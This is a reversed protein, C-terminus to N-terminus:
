PISVIGHTCADRCGETACPSIASFTGAHETLLKGKPMCETGNHQCHRGKESRAILKPEVPWRCHKSVITMVTQWRDLRQTPQGRRMDCGELADWYLEMDEDGRTRSTGTSHGLLVVDLMAWLRPTNLEIVEALGGISFEELKKVNAHVINFHLGSDQTTLRAVENRYMEVAVKNVLGQVKQKSIESYNTITEVIKDIQSTLSLVIPDGMYERSSLLGSVFELFSIQLSRMANLLSKVKQSNDM